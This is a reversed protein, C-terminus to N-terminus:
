KGVEQLIKREGIDSLIEMGNLYKLDGEFGDFV